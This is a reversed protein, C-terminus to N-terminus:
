FDHGVTQIEMKVQAHASPDLSIRKLSSLRSRFLPDAEEGQEMSRVLALDYEGPSVGKLDFGCGYDPAKATLASKAGNTPFAVLSVDPCFDRGGADVHISAGNDLIRFELAPPTPPVEVVDSSAAQGNIWLEAYENDELRVIGWRYKGAPLKEFRVVDNKDTQGSQMRNITDDVPTLLVTLQRRSGDHNAPRVVKATLRQAPTITIEAYDSAKDGVTLTTYGEQEQGDINAILRFTYTGAPVERLVVRGDAMRQKSCCDRPYSLMSFDNIGRMVTIEENLSRKSPSTVQFTVSAPQGVLMQLRIGAMTAGAPLRIRSASPADSALAFYTTRMRPPRDKPTDPGPEARLLYIGPLLRAFEFAGDPGARTEAAHMYTPSGAQYTRWLATVKANRLPQDDPDIVTGALSSRPKLEIRCAPARAQGDGRIVQAGEFPYYGGTRVPVFDDHLATALFPGPGFVHFIVVGNPGSRAVTDQGSRDTLTVEAGPVPSYTMPDTVRCVIEIASGERNIADSGVAAIATLLAMAIVSAM